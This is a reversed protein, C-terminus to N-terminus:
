KNQRSSMNLLTGEELSLPEAHLFSGPLNVRVEIVGQYGAGSPYMGASYELYSNGPTLNSFSKKPPLWIAVKDKSM